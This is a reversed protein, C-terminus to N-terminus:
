HQYIHPQLHCSYKSIHRHADTQFLCPRSCGYGLSLTKRTLRLSVTPRHFDLVPNRSHAAAPEAIIYSCYYIKLLNSDRFVSICILFHSVTLKASSDQQTRIHWGIEMQCSIIKFNVNGLNLFRYSGNCQRHMLMLMLFNPLNPAAYSHLCHNHAPFNLVHQYKM